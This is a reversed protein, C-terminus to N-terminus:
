NVRVSVVLARLCYCVILSLCSLYKCIEDSGMVGLSVPINRGRSVLGTVSVM